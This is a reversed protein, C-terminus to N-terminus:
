VWFASPENPPPVYRPLMATVLTAPRANMADPDLGPRPGYPACISLANTYTISLVDGEPKMATIAEDVWPGIYECPNPM